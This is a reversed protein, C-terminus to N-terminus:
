KQYTYPKKSKSLDYRMNSNVGLKIGARYCLGVIQKAEQYNMALPKQCLVGKIHDNQKVLERIVELQADPPIAIDVIEIEPDRILEQWTEYIKPIEHRTAIAKSEALSLSTIAQPNLGANKYAVLQCDRMIFGTSICGIRFSRRVPMVPDISFDIDCIEM